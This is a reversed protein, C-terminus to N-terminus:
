HAVVELGAAVGGRRGLVDEVRDFTEPDAPVVTVADSGVEIALPVAEATTVAFRGDEGRTFTFRALM